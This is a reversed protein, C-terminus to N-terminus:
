SSEEIDIVNTDKVIGELVKFSFSKLKYIQNKIRVCVGERIHSTDLISHGELLEETALLIDPGALYGESLQPVSKVGLEGCRRKVDDWSYEIVVGDENTMTIRYVYVDSQGIENSYSYEIEEGYMKQIDKIAKTSHRGMIAKGDPEYGVVEYYITEGKHLNMFPEAARRRLGPAHFGTRENKPTLVVRRTGVLHRWEKKPSLRLLKHYWKKEKEVLVHGVRQSTGHLKETVVFYVPEEIFSSIKNFQPTEFHEKFMKSSASNSGRNQRAANRTAESVYKSCISIGNYSSFDKGVGLDFDSFMLRFEDLPMFFGDSKEGRFKQTRVRGQDEFFGTKTTDSNKSSVRYLNFFSCFTESLQGDTPFYIGIDGESSNDAIVVQNGYCLGLKLRDAQPHKRVGTLRVVTASYM